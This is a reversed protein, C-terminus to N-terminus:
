TNLSHHPLTIPSPHQTNPPSSKNPSPHHLITILTDNNVELCNM